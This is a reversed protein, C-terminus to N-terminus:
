CCSRFRYHRLGKAVISTPAATTLVISGATNGSSRFAHQAVGVGTNFTGAVEGSDNIGNGTGTTHGGGPSGLDTLVTAFGNGTSPLVAAPLRDTIRIM